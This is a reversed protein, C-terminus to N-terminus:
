QVGGPHLGTKNVTGVLVPRSNAALNWWPRNLRRRRSPSKSKVAQPSYGSHLQQSRPGKVTPDTYPSATRAVPDKMTRLHKRLCSREAIPAPRSCSALLPPPLLSSASVNSERKTWKICPQCSTCISFTSRTACILFVTYLSTPGVSGKPVLPLGPGIPRSSLMGSPPWFKSFHEELRFVGPNSPLQIPSGAIPGSPCSNNGSCSASVGTASRSPCV